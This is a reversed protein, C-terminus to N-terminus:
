DLKGPQGGVGGILTLANSMAGGIRIKVTHKGSKLLDSSIGYEKLSVISRYSGDPLIEAAGNWTHTYKDLMKHAKGDVIAQMSWWLDPLPVSRDGNNSITVSAFAEDGLEIAPGVTVQTVYDIKVSLGTSEGSHGRSQDRAIPVSRPLANTSGTPVFQIANLMSYSSGDRRSIIRIEDGVAVDFEFTVYQVGEILEGSRFDRAVEKSTAKTGLSRDGVVIEINANQKAADGHAYVYAKYRGPSFDLLIAELDVCQCNHYIYGRFVQNVTNVAWEGDHRTIRLRATSGSGNPHRLYDVATTGIDVFNWVDGPSGAVGDYHGQGPDYAFGINLSRACSDGVRTENRPGNPQSENHRSPVTAKGATPILTGLIEHPTDQGAPTNFASDPPLAHFRRAEKWGDQTNRRLALQTLYRPIVFFGFVNRQAGSEFRETKGPSHYDVNVIRERREMKVESLSQRAIVIGNPFHQAEEVLGIVMFRSFDVQPLPHPNRGRLDTINHHEFWVREWTQEDTIRMRRPAKFHSDIGTFSKAVPSIAQASKQGPSESAGPQIEGPSALLFAAILSTVFM